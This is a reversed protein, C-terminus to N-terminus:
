IEKKSQRGKVRGIMLVWISSSMMLIGAGIMVYDFYRDGVNAIIGAIVALIATSISVITDYVAYEEGEMGETVNIAFLKRWNVVDLSIGIGFLFQLIYYHWTKNVLPYLAFSLGVLAAGLALIYIEDRDSKLKDTLKGVPIQFIARTIYSIGTGIGVFEITNRGLKDSLYIGSLASIIFLPGWTFVDALTLLLVVKNFNKIKLKLKQM